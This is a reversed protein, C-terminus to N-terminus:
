RLVGSKQLPTPPLLVFPSLFKGWWFVNHSLFYIGDSESEDDITIPAGFPISFAIIITLFKMLIKAHPLIETAAQLKSGKGLHNNLSRPVTDAYCQM